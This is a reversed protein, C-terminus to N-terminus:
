VCQVYAEMTQEAMKKWSFDKVRERGKAILKQKLSDNKLILNIKDAINDINVPDFYLAADKGVEPMSTSNSAIVPCDLAMAELMPLGFGEEFSPLVFAEANKYLVILQEDSVFGTLLINKYLPDKKIADAVFKNIREWFYHDAGSLVLTLAPNEQQLKSFAQILGEINKHPHANGVYFIYPKKVGLKKLIMEGNIKNKTKLLLGDDVAESTILIKEKDVKWESKLLEKVSNTPVLIKCSSNVAHKFVKKYGIQKMKFTFPNLATVRKMQHHQHILDHITVLFKGSYFIPVNFHPFHMLDLSYKKLLKPYKFQEAFGYWNFDAEVKKFNKEDAFNKFDKPLLFIYYENKSDIIKLNKILNRLYRGVGSENFFRADIGIKM